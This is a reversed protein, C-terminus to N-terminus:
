SESAAKARAKLRRTPRGGAAQRRAWVAHVRPCPTRGKSSSVPAFELSVLYLAWQQLPSDDAEM